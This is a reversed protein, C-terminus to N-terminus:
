ELQLAKKDYKNKKDDIELLKWEELLKKFLDNEPSIRNIFDALVYNYSKFHIRIAQTHPAYTYIKHEDNPISKARAILLEYTDSPPTVHDNLSHFFLGPALPKYNQKFLKFIDANLFDTQPNKTELLNIYKMVM